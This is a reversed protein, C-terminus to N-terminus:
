PVLVFATDTLYVLYSLSSLSLCASCFIAKPARVQVRLHNHFAKPHFYHGVQSRFFAPPPHSKLSAYKMCNIIATLFDNHSDKLNLSKDYVLMGTRLTYTSLHLSVWSMTQSIYRLQHLPGHQEARGRGRGPWQATVAKSGIGMSLVRRKERCVKM